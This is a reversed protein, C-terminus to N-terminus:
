EVKGKVRSDWLASVSKRLEDLSGRNPVLVHARRVREAEPLQSGIRRRVEAGSLNNRHRLREVVTEEACQTVWVEHVMSDWGVELLLAAELVVVEAGEQEMRSIRGQIMRAMRPHMIADLRLRAQPDGFVINGLQKRDIEGTTSLIREGFAEVVERWAESDLSYAEHGVRDADIVRAGLECLIRSVESKGTGIGGTLGIVLM